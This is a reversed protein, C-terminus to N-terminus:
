IEKGHGKIRRIPFLRFDDGPIKRFLGGFDISTQNMKESISGIWLFDRFRM